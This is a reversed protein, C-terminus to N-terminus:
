LKTLDLKKSLCNHVQSRRNVLKYKGDFTTWALSGQGCYKCTTTFSLEEEEEEEYSDFYDEMKM